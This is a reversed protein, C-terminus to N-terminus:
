PKHLAGIGAALVRTEARADSISLLITRTEQEGARRSVEIDVQVKSVAVELATLRREADPSLNSGAPAAPSPNRAFIAPLVLPAIWKAFHIFGLTLPASALAAIFTATDSM